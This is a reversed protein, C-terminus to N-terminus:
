HASIWMVFSKKAREPVGDDFSYEKTRIDFHIMEKFKVWYMIEQDTSMKIGEKVTEFYWM